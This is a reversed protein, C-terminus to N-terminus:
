TRCCKKYKKNSGCPCPDNVNIKTFKHDFFISGNWHDTEHQCIVAVFDKLVMTNPHYINNIIEIENFRLTNEIKGPFSLCGEDPFLQPHKKNIISCNALYLSSKHNPKIIAVQKLIGIQPAALGVGPRGLEDSRQLENELLRIIEGVEAHSAPTSKQRLFKEDTIIM